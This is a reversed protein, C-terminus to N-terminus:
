ASGHPHVAVTCVAQLSSSAKGSFLRPKSMVAFMTDAAFGGKLLFCYHRGTLDFKKICGFSESEDGRFVAALVYEDMDGGDLLRTQSAQIFALADAEVDFGVLFARLRDIQLDNSRPNGLSQLRRPNVGAGNQKKLASPSGRRSRRKRPSRATRHNAVGDSERPSLVAMGRVTEETKRDQAAILVVV